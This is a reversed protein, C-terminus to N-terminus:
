WVTPIRSSSNRTVNEAAAQEITRSREYQDVKKRQQDIKGNSLSISSKSLSQAKKSQNKTKKRKEQVSTCM